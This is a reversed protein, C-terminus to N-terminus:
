PTPAQTRCAGGGLARLAGPLLRSAELRDLADERGAGEIEQARVMDAAVSVLPLDDRDLVFM